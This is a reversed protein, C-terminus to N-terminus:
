AGKEKLRPSSKLREPKSKLLRELERVRRELVRAQKALTRLGASRLQVSLSERAAPKAAQHYDAQFEAHRERHFDCRTGDSLRAAGCGAVACLGLKVRAARGRAERQTDKQAKTMKPSLM